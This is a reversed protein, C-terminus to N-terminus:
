PVCVAPECPAAPPVAPALDGPGITVKPKAPEETKSEAATAPPQDVKVAVLPKPDSNSKPSQVVYPSPRPAPLQAFSPAGLGLALLGGALVGASRRLGSRSTSRMNGERFDRRYRRLRRM